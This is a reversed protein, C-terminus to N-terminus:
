QSLADVLANGFKKSAKPGNGTILNGDEYVKSKKWKGGAKKIDKRAGWADASTLTRGELVGAKALVVPSYCIAGVLMGSDMADKGIRQADLNNVMKPSGKGGIFVVADFDAVAVDTYALAVDANTGGQGKAQGIKESAVTIGVGADELAGRTKKYETDEFGSQSVVIVAKKGTADALCDVPMSAGFAVLAAFMFLFLRVAKM